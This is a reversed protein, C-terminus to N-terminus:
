AIKYISLNNRTNNVSGPQQAAANIGGSITITAQVTDGAVMPTMISGAGAYEGAGGCATPNVRIVIYSRTSATATTTVKIRVLLDVARALQNLGISLNVVYLGAEPATYYPAAWSNTQDVVVTDFVVSTEVGPSIAPSISLCCAAFAPQKAASYSGGLKLSKSVGLGGATTLSAVTPSNAEQTNSVSVLGTPTYTMTGYITFNRPVGTGGAAWILSAGTGGAILELREYNASTELTNLCYLAIKSNYSGTSVINGLSVRCDPNIADSMRFRLSTGPSGGITGASTYMVMSNPLVIQPGLLNSNGLVTIAGNFTSNGSAVNLSLPTTITCNTGSIPPGAITLTSATSTTVATNTAALTTQSLYNASFATATGSAATSSDTYTSPAVHIWKGTTPTSAGTQASGLLLTKVITTNGTVNLNGLGDLSMVNTAGGYWKHAWTVTNGGTAYWLTSSDVGIALDTLTASEQPLLVLKAGASRTTVAPPASGFPPFYIRPNTTSLVIDGAVNLAGGSSTTPNVASGIVLTSEVNVAGTGLLSLGASQNLMGLRVNNSSSGSGVYNFSLSGIMNTANAVGLSIGISNGAALAPQLVAHPTTATVTGPVTFIATTGSLAGTVGLTTSFTASTGTIAGTTLTTLTTAGTVGLTTAFTASTGTLAGLTSAGATM